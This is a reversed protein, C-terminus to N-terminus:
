QKGTMYQKKGTAVCIVDWLKKLPINMHPQSRYAKENEPLDVSKRLFNYFDPNFFVNITMDRKGAFGMIRKREGNRYLELIHSSSDTVNHKFYYESGEM